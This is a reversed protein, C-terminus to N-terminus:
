HSGKKIINKKITAFVPYLYFTGTIVLPEKESVATAFDVIEEYPIKHANIGKSKAFQYIKDEEEWEEDPYRTIYLNKIKPSLIDLFKEWKKNKKFSVLFNFKEDPLSLLLCKASIPNHGGDYIINQFVEFRGKIRRIDYSFTRKEKGFFNKLVFFSTFSSLVANEVFPRVGFFDTLIEGYKRERIKISIKEYFHYKKIKDLSFSFDNIIEGKSVSSIASFQEEGEKHITIRTSEPPVCLAKELAISFLSNGLLDEHDFDIRSIVALPSRALSVADLRGGLGIELCAFDVRKEAFYLFALATAHEFYTLEVGLKKEAESVLYSFDYLDEDSIEEEKMDSVIKIRESFRELHPSTYLGVKLFRSLEFAIQTTIQGKGVTGAITLSLFRKQPNGFYSLIKELRELGLIIKGEKKLFIPPVIQNATM